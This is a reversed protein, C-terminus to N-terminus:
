LVITIAPGSIGGGVELLLGPGRCQTEAGCGSHACFCALQTAGSNPPSCLQALFTVPFPSPKITQFIDYWIFITHCLDSNNFMIGCIQSNQHYKKWFDTFIQSTSSIKLFKDFINDEVVVNKVSKSISIINQHSIPPSRLPRWFIWIRVKKQFCSCPHWGVRGSWIFSFVGWKLWIQLLRGPPSPRVGPQSATELTITCGDTPQTHLFLGRPPPPPLTITHPFFNGPLFNYFLFDGPLLNYFLFDGPVPNNHIIHYLKNHIHAIACIIHYLQRYYHWFAFSPSLHQLAFFSSLYLSPINAFSLPVSSFQVSSSSYLFCSVDGKSCPLLATRMDREREHM